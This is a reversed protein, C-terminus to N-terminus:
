PDDAPSGWIRGRDRTRASALCRAPSNVSCDTRSGESSSPTKVRISLGEHDDARRCGAPRCGAAPPVRTAGAVRGEDYPPAQIELGGDPFSPLSQATCRSPDRSEARSPRIHMRRPAARCRSRILAPPPPSSRLSDSGHPPYGVVSRFCLEQPGFGGDPLILRRHACEGNTTATMPEGVPTGGTKGASACRPLEPFVALRTADPRVLPPDLEM